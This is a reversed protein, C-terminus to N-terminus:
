QIVLKRNTLKEFVDAAYLARNIEVNPKKPAILTIVAKESDFECTVDEIFNDMCTDFSESLRLLLSIKMIADVDDNSLVQEYEKWNLKLKKHRHLSAAFASMIIEKHTLGNIGSNLIMYFSHSNHGYYSINIGSDHLMAATKLVKEASKPIKLLGNLQDYMSTSLKYVHYSHQKDVKFRSMINEISFDLVSNISGHNKEIFDYVLGERIGSGSVIIHKIKCYELLHWVASCAGFFIDARDKSLGKIKARKEAPKGKAMEYISQVSRSHIKYNHALSLPYQKFKKDIKGITRITGGVGILPLDKLKKLWPVSDFQEILFEKLDNANKDSISWATDFKKTLDISGFPLSISNKVMQNEFHILETSGGGIDMILGKTENISHIVGYYAFNAEQWGELVNVKIGTNKMVTEIFEQQNPAKRVAATAVGIIKDSKVAECITKFMQLTYLAKQVREPKLVNNEDTDGLRVTEKFENIISFYGESDVDVVVLRVSNSGIDIIGLRHM